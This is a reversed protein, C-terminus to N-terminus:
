RRAIDNVARGLINDHMTVMRQNAEYTRTVTIMDVMERVSNVNSSELAGQVITGEFDKIVSQATINYLNDGHKRLTHSDEFDVLRLRDIYEGNVYIEGLESVLIDGSPIYIEGNEGMVRFGDKTVLISDANLTFSGDRSYRTIPSTNNRDFSEIEFFGRGSIAIDLSGHTIQLSGSSFDTYIDDVFIGPNMTGITRSPMLGDTKDNIRAMLEDSFSRTVVTDKKFGTTDTNAINNALVDMRNMQTTMGLASAYLGRIM